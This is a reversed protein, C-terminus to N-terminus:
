RPSGGLAKAIDADLAQPKDTPAYRGLV